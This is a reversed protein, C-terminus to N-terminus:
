EKLIEKKRVDQGEQMSINREKIKRLINIITM